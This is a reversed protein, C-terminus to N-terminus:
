ETALWGETENGLYTLVRSRLTDPILPCSRMMSSLCRGAWLPEADTEIKRLLKSSPVNENSGLLMGRALLCRICNKRSEEQIRLKPYRKNFLDEGVLWLGPASLLVAQLLRMSGVVLGAHRVHSADCTVGQRQALMLLLTAASGIESPETEVVSLLHERASIAFGETLSHDPFTSFFELLSAMSQGALPAGKSPTSVTSGVSETMIGGSSDSGMKDKNLGYKRALFVRNLETSVDRPYTGWGGGQKSFRWTSPKDLRVKRLCGSAVHTQEMSSIDIEYADGSMEQYFVGVPIDTGERWVLRVRSSQGCHRQNSTSQSRADKRPSAGAEHVPQNQVEFFSSTPGEAFVPCVTTPYGLLTEAHESDLGSPPAATKLRVGKAGHAKLASPLAQKRVRPM